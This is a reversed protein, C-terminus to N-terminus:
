GEALDMGVPRWAAEIRQVAKAIRAALGEDSPCEVAGSGVDVSAAADDVRVVLSGPGAVKVPGFQAALMAAMLETQAELVTEEAGHELASRWRKEARRM